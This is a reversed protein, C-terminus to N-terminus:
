SRLPPVPRGRGTAPEGTGAPGPEPRPSRHVRALALELDRRLTALSRGAIGDRAILVYDHAPRVLDSASLRVAEKLLRRYRNRQVAKGLRKTVTFGFRALTDVPDGSRPRTELVFGATAWRAGGRLRLFESRRKLRGVPAALM